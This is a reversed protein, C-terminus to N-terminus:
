APVAQREAPKERPSKPGALRTFNRQAAHLPADVIVGECVIQGSLLSFELKDYRPLKEGPAPPLLAIQGQISLAAEGTGHLRPNWMRIGTEAWRRRILTPRDEAQLLQPRAPRSPAEAAAPPETCPAAEAIVASIEEVCATPAESAGAAAIAGDVVLPAKDGETAVDHAVAEVAPSAEPDPVTAFDDAAFELVTEPAAADDQLINPSRQVPPADEPAAAQDDAIVPEADAAESPPADRDAAPMEPAADPSECVEEVIPAEVAALCADDIYAPEGNAADGITTLEAATVPSGEVCVDSIPVLTDLASPPDIVAVTEPEARAIGTPVADTGAPGGRLLGRLRTLPAAALRSMLAILRSLVPQGSPYESFVDSIRWCPLLQGPGQM